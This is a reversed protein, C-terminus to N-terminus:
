GTSWVPVNFIEGRAAIAAREGGPSLAINEINDAANVPQPRDTTTDAPVTISLARDSNDRTDYIHLEGDLEYVIRGEADASPWRM